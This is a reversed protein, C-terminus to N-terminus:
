KAEKLETSHSPFQWLEEDEALTKWTKCVLAAEQVDQSSLFSFITLATTKPQTPPLDGFYPYTPEDDNETKRRKRSTSPDFKLRLAPTRPAASPTIKAVDRKLSHSTQRAATPPADFHDSRREGSSGYGPTVPPIGGLPSFTMKLGPQAHSPGM